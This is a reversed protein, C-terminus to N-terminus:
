RRRTLFSTAAFAFGLVLFCAYVFVYTGAYLGGLSSAGLRHLGTIYAVIMVLGAAGPLVMLTGLWAITRLVPRPVLAGWPLVLALLIAAALVALAATGWYAFLWVGVTMSRDAAHLQAPDSLGITAGL